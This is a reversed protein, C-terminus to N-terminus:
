ETQPHHLVPSDGSVEQGHTCSSLRTPSLPAAASPLETSSRTRPTIQSSSHAPHGPPEGARLWRQQENWESACHQDRCSCAGQKQLPSKEQPKPMQPSHKPKSKGKCHPKIQYNGAAVSAARIGKGASACVHFCRSVKRGLNLDKRVKDRM